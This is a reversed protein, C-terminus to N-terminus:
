DEIWWGSGDRYGNRIMFPMVVHHTGKGASLLRETEEADEAKLVSLIQHYLEDEVEQWAYFAEAGWPDDNDIEHMLMGLHNSVVAYSDAIIKADTVSALWQLVESPTYGMLPDEHLTFFPYQYMDKLGIYHRALCM